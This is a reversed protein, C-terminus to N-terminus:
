DEPIEPLLKEPSGSLISSPSSGFRAAFATAFYEPSSFGCMDAVEKVLYQRSELLELAKQMRCHILYESPTLQFEKKFDRCLTVSHVNLM